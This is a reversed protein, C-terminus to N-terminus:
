LADCAMWRRSASGCVPTSVARSLVSPSGARQYLWLASAAVLRPLYSTYMSQSKVAAAEL